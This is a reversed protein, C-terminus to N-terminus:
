RIAEISWLAARLASAFGALVLTAAWVAVFLATIFAATAVLQPDDLPRTSLFVARIGTWALHLAFLAPLVMALAVIWGTASTRLARAASPRRPAGTALGSRRRLVRRTALAALVEALLVVAVVLALPERAGDLLRLVLPVELSGPRLFEAYGVDVLRLTLWGLALAVPVLLLVQIAVLELVTRLRREPLVRAAAGGTTALESSALLREWASLDAVATGFAAVVVLGALGALALAIAAVLNASLGAAGIADAGLLTSLEVPSPLAWIPLALVLWGGRLLFGLAGLLWLQPDALVVALATALSGPFSVHSSQSRAVGLDGSLFRM